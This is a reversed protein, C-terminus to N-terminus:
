EEGGKMKPAEPLPMWHTVYYDFQPECLKGEGVFYPRYEGFKIGGKYTYVLYKGEREPPREDVSIWEQKRYGKATMKKAITQPTILRRNEYEKDFIEALDRYMQVLEENQKDKSM